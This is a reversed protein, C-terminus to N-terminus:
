KVCLVCSQVCPVYVVNQDYLFFFFDLWVDDVCVYILNVIVYFEIGCIFGM